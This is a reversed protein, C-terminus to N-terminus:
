DFLAMLENKKLKKVVNEDTQIIDEAIRKKKEQLKLIKEEITDKCILKYAFINKKQGIRHTRDIAQAEVAPNWWPDIIYVYDAKTLNLGTNGAKISILFLKVDDNEMFRNVEAERDRTKGDLYAYKIKKADLEKRVISLLSTFQSFVLANHNGLTDELNDLLLQIKVSNTNAGKFNPNVLLPSNCMQRLRLLGDLIKFRSKALGDEEIKAYIDEKIQKKLNEYLKRQTPEMECYLTSVTKPPLDKAVQEKTRRLIFPHVIKRLLAGAEADGRGDIPDSFNSKFHSASNLLGPNTFSLQAYLDFTNNEIPTGTMALKNNSQLLRMAKYRKSQINKIAQSEDLVIYEFTYLSLLEIDSAATDYTTLVIQYNLIPELEKERKTGHHVYYSLQPCFKDIENCWNFLLSKPVIILSCSTKKLNALMSIVQITKGLGMDDALIGGFGSDNLFRLWNYGHYQYDRLTAKVKKPIKYSQNFKCKELKEKREEIFSIVDPSELSDFLSDIVNYKYHSIKLEGKKVEAVTMLQRARALWEDPLLGLSGDKLSVFNEGNKLAAIWTKTAIQEAGFSLSMEVDFWDIGSKISTAFKARKTSYKFGKLDKVGQLDIGAAECGECFSLFWNNKLLDKVTLFFFNNNGFDSFNRHANYLYSHLFDIDEQHPVIIKNGKQIPVLRYIDIEEGMDELYPEFIVADTVERLKIVYQPNQIFEESPLLDKEISVSGIKELETILKKLEVPPVDPLLLSDGLQFLSSYMAFEVSPNIFIKDKSNSMFLNSFEIDSSKLTQDELKMKRQIACTGEDLRIEFSVNLRKNVFKVKKVDSKRLKSFGHYNLNVYHYKETFWAENENLLEEFMDFGEDSYFLENIKNIVSHKSTYNETIDKELNSNTINIGEKTKLRPGILVSALPLASDHSINWLIAEEGQATLLAAKIIEQESINGYNSTPNLMDAYLDKWNAKSLVNQSTEYYLNGRNDFYISYYKKIASSSIGLKTALESYIGELDMNWSVFKSSTIFPLANDLLIYQHQCFGRVRKDCSGCKYYFTNNENKIWMTLDPGTMGYSYKSKVTNIKVIDPSEFSLITDTYGPLAKRNSRITYKDLISQSTIVDPIQFYVDSDHLKLKKFADKEAEQELKVKQKDKLKFQKILSYLVAAQHKCYDDYLCDCDMDLIDGFENYGNEEGCFDIEVHYPSRASGQVLAEILEQEFSLKKIRIDGVKSLERGRTRIIKKFYSRLAAEFRKILLGYNM